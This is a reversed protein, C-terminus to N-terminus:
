GMGWWERVDTVRRVGVGRHRAAQHHDRVEPVSDFTASCYRCTWRGSGEDGVPDDPAGPPPSLALREGGLYGCLLCRSARARQGSNFFAAFSRCAFPCFFPPFSAPRPRGFFPERCIAPFCDSSEPSARSWAAAARPTLGRVSSLSVAMTSAASTFGSRNPSRQSGSGGCKPCPMPVEPCSILLLLAPGSGVGRSREGAPEGAADPLLGALPRRGVSGCIGRWAWRPPPLSRPSVDLNRGSGPPTGAGRVDFYLRSPARPM